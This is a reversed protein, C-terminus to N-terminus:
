WLHLGGLILDFHGLQVYEWKQIEMAEREAGDPLAQVAPPAQSHDDPGRSRWEM